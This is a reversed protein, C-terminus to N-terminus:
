SPRCTGFSCVGVCCDGTNTCAGGLGACTSNTKICNGSQCIGSCCDSDATCSPKNQCTGGSAASCVLLSSTCTGQANPGGSCPDGSLPLCTASCAFGTSSTPNPVCPKHNCCEDTFHCEGGAAVCDSTAFCRNAGVITPECNDVCTHTTVTDCYGTCCQSGSTCANGNKTCGNASPNCCNQSAGQGGCVEGPQLCSTRKSCRLETHTNDAYDCSGSCCEKSSSTNRTLCVEGLVKCGNIATCLGTADVGNPVCLTDCCSRVGGCPENYPTCAGVVHCTGSPKGGAIDCV